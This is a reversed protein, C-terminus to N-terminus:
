GGLMEYVFDHALARWRGWGSRPSPVNRLNDAVTPLDAIPVDRFDSIDEADM